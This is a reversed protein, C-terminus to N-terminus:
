YISTAKNTVPVATLNREFVMCDEDAIRTSTPGVKFFGTVHWYGSDWNVYSMLNEDRVFYLYVCIYDDIDNNIVDKQRYFLYNDNLDGISKNEPQPFAISLSVVRNEHKSLFRLFTSDLEDHDLYKHAYAPYKDAPSKSLEEQVAELQRTTENSEKRDLGFGLVSVVFGLIGLVALIGTALPHSGIWSFFKNPVNLSVKKSIVNTDIPPIETKNEILKDDM